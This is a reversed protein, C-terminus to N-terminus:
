NEDTPNCDGCSKRSSIDVLVLGTAPCVVNFSQYGFEGGFCPGAVTDPGVWQSWGTTLAQSGPTGLNNWTYSATTCCLNKFRIKGTTWSCDKLSCDNGVECCGSSTGAGAMNVDVDICGLLLFAPDPDSEEGVPCVCAPPCTMLPVVVIVTPPHADSVNNLSCETMSGSFPGVILCSAVVTAAFSALSSLM